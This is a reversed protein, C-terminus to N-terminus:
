GPPHDNTRGTASEVYAILEASYISSPAIIKQLFDAYDAGQTGYGVTMTIDSGAASPLNPNALNGTTVVGNALQGVVM